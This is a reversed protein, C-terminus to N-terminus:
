QTPPKSDDTHGTITSGSSQSNRSGSGVGTTGRVASTQSGIARTGSSVGRGLRQIESNAKAIDSARVDLSAIEREVAKQNDAYCPITALESAIGLDAVQQDTLRGPWAFNHIYRLMEAKAQTIESSIQVTTGLASNLDAQSNALKSSQASTSSADNVALGGQLLIRHVGNAQDDIKEVCKLAAKAYYANLSCDSIQPKLKALAVCYDGAFAPSAFFFLLGLM